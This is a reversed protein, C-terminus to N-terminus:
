KQLLGAYSYNQKM